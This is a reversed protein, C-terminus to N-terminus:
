ATLSIRRRSPRRATLRRARTSRSRLRGQVYRTRAGALRKPGLGGRIGGGGPLRIRPGRPAGLSIRRGGIGIRSIGGGGAAARGGGLSVAGAGGAGAGVRQLPPAKEQKEFEATLGLTAAALGYNQEMTEVMKRQVPSMKALTDARQQDTLVGGFAQRYPNLTSFMQRALKDPEGRGLETAKEIFAQYTEAVRQQDGSGIAEVLAQRYPTMETPLAISLSARREVLDQPGFKQLVRVANRNNQLGERQFTNEIITESIPINAEALRDLGHTLDHTRYVDRAYTLMSNVKDFAFAQFGVNGGRYGTAGFLQNLTSNLMPIGATMNHLTIEAAEKTDRAEDITKVTGEKNHFLRDLQRIMRAELDGGIFAFASVGLATLGAAILLGSYTDAQVGRAEASFAAKGLTTDILKLTQASWGMFPLIAQIATAKQLQYPRNSPAAHHTQEVFRSVIGRARAEAKETAQAADLEEPALFEVAGRAERPTQSLRKWYQIMLDQLDIDTSTSFLERAAQLNTSNPRAWSPLRAPDVFRFRGAFSPLVEWPQLKNRPDTLRDFNFRGLQGLREYTEFTRRANAALMDIYWGGQRAVADYTINYGFAGPLYVNTGAVFAEGIAFPKSVALKAGRMIGGTGITEPRQLVGGKTRSASLINAIRAGLATDPTMGLAKQDFWWGLAAFQEDTTGKLVAEIASYIRETGERALAAKAAGPVNILLRLPIGPVFGKGPHYWGLGTATGVRFASTIASAAAAPFSRIRGYGLQQFVLGMKWASGGMSVGSIRAATRPGTLAAGIMFSVFRSGTKLSIGEAKVANAGFWRPMNEIFRDLQLIKNEIAQLNRFDRGERYDAMTRKVTAESMDAAAEKMNQRLARQSESMRELGFEGMDTSYSRMEGADIWGYDYFYAPGLDQQFGRTFATPRKESTVTVGLNRESHMKSFRETLKELEGFFQKRVQDPTMEAPVHQNLYDLVEEVTKPAVPDEDSVMRTIERYHEEFPSLGDLKVWNSSRQRMFGLLFNQFKDPDNLTQTLSRNFRNVIDARAVNQQDLTMGEDIVRQPLRSLEANRASILANVEFALKEGHDSFSHPLTTNKRFGIEMPRRIGWVDGSFEDVLRPAEMVGEAGAAKATNWMREYLDNTMRGEVHLLDLDEATIKRGNIVDGARVERGNRFEWAIANLFSQQYDKRTLENFGQGKYALQIARESLDANTGYWGKGQAWYRDAAKQALFSLKAAPLALGQYFAEPIGLSFKGFLSEIAGPNWIASSMLTGEMLRQREEWYLREPNNLNEPQSLWDTIDASYKIMEAMATQVTNPTFGLDIQYPKGLPSYVTDKATYRFFPGRDRAQEMRGRVEAPIQLGEIAPNNLVHNVWERYEPDTEVANHLRVAEEHSAYDRLTREIGRNLALYAAEARGEKEGLRAARQLIRPIAAAPDNQISQAIVSAARNWEQNTIIDRSLLALSAFQNRLDRNAALVASALQGLAFENGQPIGQGDEFRLRMYEDWIDQGTRDGGGLLLSIGRETQALRDVITNFHQAVANDFQPMAELRTLDGQLQEHMAGVTRLNNLTETIRGAAAAIQLTFTRRIEAALDAKEGRQSAQTLKNRFQESQLNALKDATKRRLDIGLQQYRQVSEFASKLIESREGNSSANAIADYYNVRGGMGQALETLERAKNMQDLARARDSIELEDAKAVQRTYRHLYGGITKAQPGIADLLRQMTWDEPTLPLNHVIREVAAPNIVSGRRVITLQEAIARAAIREAALRTLPVGVKNAWALVTGVAKQFWNRDKWSDALATIVRARVEMNLESAPYGRDNVDKVIGKLEEDSLARLMPSLVEAAGHALEHEFVENIQNPFRMKAANIRIKTLTYPFRGNAGRQTGPQISMDSEGNWEVSPDNVVEVMGGPQVGFQQQIHAAVQDALLPKGEHETAISRATRRGADEVTVAGKVKKFKKDKDITGAEIKVWTEGRFPNDGKNARAIFEDATRGRTDTARVVTAGEPIKIRVQAAQSLVELPTRTEPQSPPLAARRELNAHQKANVPPRDTRNGAEDLQYWRGVGQDDLAKVYNDVITGASTTGGFKTPKPAEPAEVAAAAAAQKAAAKERLTLLEDPTTAAQGQATPEPRNRDDTEASPTERVEEGHPPVNEGATTRPLEEAFDKRKDRGTFANYYGKENITLQSLFDQVSARDTSLLERPFIGPASLPLDIAALGTPEFTTGNFTFAYSATAPKGGVEKTAGSPFLLIARERADLPLGAFEAALDDGTAGFDSPKLPEKTTALVSVDPVAAQIGLSDRPHAAEEGAQTAGPLDSALPAAEPVNVSKVDVVSVPIPAVETKPVQLNQAGVAVVDPVAVPTEPLPAVNLDGQQEVPATPASARQQRIRTADETRETTPELPSIEPPAYPQPIPRGALAEAYAQQSAARREELDPITLKGEVAKKTGAGVALTLLGNAGLDVVSAAKQGPTMGTWGKVTSVIGKGLNYLMDATFALGTTVPAEAALGPTLVGLPSSFFEPISIAVNAVEKGVATLPHDDKEIKFPQYHVIPQTLEGAFSPQPERLLARQIEPVTRGREPTAVGLKAEGVRRLAELGTAAMGLPGITKARELLAQELEPDQTPAPPPPPPTLGVATDDELATSTAATSIGVQRDSEVAAPSLGVDEDTELQTTAM